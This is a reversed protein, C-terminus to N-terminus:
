FDYDEDEDADMGLAKLGGHISNHEKIGQLAQTKESTSLTKGTHRAITDLMDQIGQHSQTMDIADPVRATPVEANTPNFEFADSKFKDTGPQRIFGKAPAKIHPRVDTGKTVHTLSMPHEPTIGLDRDADKALELMHNRTLNDGTQQIGSKFEDQSFGTGVRYTFDAKVRRNLSGPTLPRKRNKYWGELQGRPVTKTVNGVTAVLPTSVPGVRGLNNISVNELYKWTGGPLPSREGSMPLIKNFTSVVKNRFSRKAPDSEKVANVADAASDYQVNREPYGRTREAKEERIKDVPRYHYIIDAFKGDASINKIVAFMQKDRGGGGPNYIGEDHMHLSDGGRSAGDPNTTDHNIFHVVDYKRLPEDEHGGLLKFADATPKYDDVVVKPRLLTKIWEGSGPRSHTMNRELNKGSGAPIRVHQDIMPKFVCQKHCARTLCHQDHFDVATNYARAYSRIDFVSDEPNNLTHGTNKCTPCFTQEKIRDIPMPENGGHKAGHCEPCKYAESERALKDIHAYHGALITRDNINQQRHADRQKAYDTGIPDEVEKVRKKDALEKVKQPYPISTQGEPVESSMGPRHVTLPGFKGNGQAENGEDDDLGLDFSPNFISFGEQHEVENAANKSNFTSPM